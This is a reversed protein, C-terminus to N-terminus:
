LGASGAAEEHLKKALEARAQAQLQEEQSKRLRAIYEDRKQKISVMM